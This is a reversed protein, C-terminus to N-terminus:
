SVVILKTTAMRVSFQGMVDYIRLFANVLRHVVSSILPARKLLLVMVGLIVEASSHYATCCRTATHHSM